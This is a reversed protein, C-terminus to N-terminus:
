LQREQRMAHEVCESCYVLKLTTGAPTFLYWDKTEKVSCMDGQCQQVTGPKPGTNKAKKPFSQGPRQFPKRAM